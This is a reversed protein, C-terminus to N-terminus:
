TTLRIHCEIQVHHETLKINNLNRVGNVKVETFLRILRTQVSM